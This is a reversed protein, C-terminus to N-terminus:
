GISSREELLTGGLIYRGLIQVTLGSLVMTSGFELLGHNKGRFGSELRELYWNLRSAELNSRSSM